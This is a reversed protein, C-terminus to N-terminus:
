KERVVVVLFFFFGKEMDYVFYIKIKKTVRERSRETASETSRKIENEKKERGGGRLFWFSPHISQISSLVPGVPSSRYIRGM